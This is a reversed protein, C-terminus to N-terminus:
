FFFFAGSANSLFNAIKATKQRRKPPKLEAMIKQQNM